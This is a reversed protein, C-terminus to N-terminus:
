NNINHNHPSKDNLNTSMGKISNVKKKKIVCTQPIAMVMWSKHRSLM